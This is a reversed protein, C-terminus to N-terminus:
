SAIDKPSGKFACMVVDSGQESFISSKGNSRPINSRDMKKKEKTMGPEVVSKLRLPGKSRNQAEMIGTLETLIFKKIIQGMYSVVQVQMYM